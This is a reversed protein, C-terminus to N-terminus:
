IGGGDNTVVWNNVKILTLINSQEDLEFVLTYEDQRDLDDNSNIDPHQTLIESILSFSKQYSEGWGIELTIDLEHLLRLVTFDAEAQTMNSQVTQPSYSLRNPSISENHVNYSGNNATILMSPYVATTGSNSSKQIIVHINNTNKVLDIHESMVVNNRQEYTLSGHFLSCLNKKNEDIIDLCFDNLHSAPSLNYFNEIQSGGGWAVIHYNGKPLPLWLRNSEDLATYSVKRSDIFEGSDRDYINLILESVQESFLCVDQTNKTYTFRVYVGTVCDDYDDEICSTFVFAPFLLIILFISSFSFSHFYKM